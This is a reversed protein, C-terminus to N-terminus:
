LCFISALPSTIWLGQIAAQRRHALSTHRVEPSVSGLCVVRKTNLQMWASVSAVTDSGTARSRGWMEWQPGQLVTGM